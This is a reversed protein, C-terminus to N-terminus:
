NITMLHSEHIEVLRKKRQKWNIRSSGTVHWKNEPVILWLRSVAYIILISPSHFGHVATQNISPFATYSISSSHKSASVPFFPTRLYSGPYAFLRREDRLSLHPRCILGAERCSFVPSHHLVGQEKSEKTFSKKSTPILLLLWRWRRWLLVPNSILWIMTEADAEVAAGVAVVAVATAIDRLWRRRRCCCLILILWIINCGCGSGGTGCGCGCDCGCNTAAVDSM